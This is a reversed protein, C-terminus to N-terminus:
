RKFGPIGIEIIGNDQIAYKEPLSQPTFYRTHSVQTASAIAM